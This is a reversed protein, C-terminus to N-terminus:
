EGEIGKNTKETKPWAQFEFRKRVIKKEVNCATSVLEDFTQPEAVAVFTGIEPVLNHSCMQVATMETLKETCQLKLCRWRAIFDNVSEDHRQIANALDMISIKRESSVFHALFSKHMDDWTHISSPPLQTYWTFAPGKLSQVFQRILLADSQSTEGCASYFHTLHEHPTGNVGDFKEFSPKQYGKPYPMADYHAHYPRQYGLIPPTLSMHLKRINEDFIEKIQQQTIQSSSGEKKTESGGVTNAKIALQATLAAIEADKKALKRQMEQLQEELSSTGIVMVSMSEVDENKSELWKSINNSTFAKSRSQHLRAQAMLQKIHGICPRSKAQLDPSAGQSESSAHIGMVQNKFKVQSKPSAGQLMHAQVRMAENDQIKQNTKKSKVYRTVKSHGWLHHTNSVKVKGEIYWAQSKINSVTKDKKAPQICRTINKRSSSVKKEEKFSVVRIPEATILTVPISGIMIEITTCAKNAAIANTKIVRHKKTKAAKTSALPAKTAVNPCCETAEM